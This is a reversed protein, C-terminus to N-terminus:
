KRGKVEILHKDPDYFRVVKEGEYDALPSVYFIDYNSAELKEVFQELDYEEFYLEMNHGGFSIEANVAKEWEEQEQLVLGESLIVKSGFDTLVQLGFLEKYFSKSVEIDKVVLLVNKLRM